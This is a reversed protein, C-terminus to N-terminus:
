ARPHAKEFSKKLRDISVHTYIQTTQLNSHGLFEQVTRLDSGGDLLHTAASHRLTHPSFGGAGPIENLFAHVVSYVARVNIRGGRKGLFVPGNIDRTFDPRGEALWKTLASTAKLGIPVIRTKSGKGFVRITGSTLDLHEIDLGVLEAVRLGASYLTELIVYEQLKESSSRSSIESADLAETLSSQAVTGPLHKGSKPAKLRHTPNAIEYRLNLWAAFGKIASLRRAVSKATLARSEEFLWQRYINLSLAEAESDIKNRQLFDLLSDLDSGYSRITADSLGRVAHLERLYEGMLEGM